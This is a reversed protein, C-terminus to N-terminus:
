QRVHVVLHTGHDGIEPQAFLQVHAFSAKRSAGADRASLSPNRGFHEFSLSRNICVHVCM